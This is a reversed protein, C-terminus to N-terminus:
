RDRHRFVCLVGDALDRELKAADGEAHLKPMLRDFYSVFPARASQLPFLLFFIDIIDFVFQLTNGLYQVEAIAVCSCEYFSVSAIRGVDLLEVLCKQSLRARDSGM